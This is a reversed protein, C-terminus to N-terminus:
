PKLSASVDSGLQQLMESAYPGSTKLEGIQGDMPSFCHGVNPYFHLTPKVPYVYTDELTWNWNLQADNMGQYIFIAPAKIKAAIEYFPPLAKLSEYWGSLAPSALLGRVAVYYNQYAPMLENAISINGDHNLDLSSLPTGIIPLKLDQYKSLSTASIQVDSPNTLHSLLLKTPWEVFQYGFVTDIPRTLPALLYLADVELDNTLLSAVMAGESFGIVGHKISPFQSLLLQYAAEADTVLFPFKQNPLQQPNDFGRKSFRLSVIGQQALAEALQLSLKGSQQHYPTGLFPGSVDGDLDVNGSGQIILVAATPHNPVTFLANLKQGDKTTV